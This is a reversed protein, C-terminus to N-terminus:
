DRAYGLESLARTKDTWGPDVRVFLELHVPCGLLAAVEHRARSGIERVMRGGEGVVIKKQAPKEVHVTAKIVVAGREDDKGAREEWADVSVAVAYPVEQRTLLFVQERVLEAALWREARDTVMEEPYIAPGEPLLKVAEATLADVGDGTLASIPVVASFAHAKNWGDLIPLLKRKDRVRDVKNLALIAPKGARKLEELVFGHAADLKFGRKLEAGEPAEIILCAADVESLASLAEEVMFRNLRTRGRGTPRHLGPTDVLVLQAGPLNRVGLIRNRTTQPRPAVIAIKEGLIRNLLTSKGVNPRGVLAMFGARHMHIACEM